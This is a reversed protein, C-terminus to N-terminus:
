GPAELRAGKRAGGAQVEKLRQAELGPVELGAGGLCRWGADGVATAGQASGPEVM